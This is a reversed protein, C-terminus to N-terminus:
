ILNKLRNCIYKELKNLYICEYVAHGYISSDSYTNEFSFQNCIDPNNMLINEKLLYKAFYKDEPTNLENNSIYNYKDTIMKMIKVNRLSTGGNGNFVNEIQQIHPPWQAGIYNYNIFEYNFKSFALSDYQFILVYDETFSNWFKNSKLLNSYENVSDFKNIINFKAEIKYNNLIKKYKPINNETTFINLNWKKDISYLFMILIYEFISDFRDDIFLLTYKNDKNYELKYNIKKYIQHFLTKNKYIIYKFYQFKNFKGFYYWNYYLFKINKDIKLNYNFLNENYYTYNFFKLEKILYLLLKDNIFIKDKHINNFKLNEFNNLKIINKKEKFINYYFCLNNKNIIKFFINLPQDKKNFIEIFYDNKYYFNYKLKNQPNLIIIYFNNVEFFINSNFNYNNM